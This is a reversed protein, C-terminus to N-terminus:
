QNIKIKDVKLNPALKFKIKDIVELSLFNSKIIFKFEIESQLSLIGINTWNINLKINHM